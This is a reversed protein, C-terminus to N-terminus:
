VMTQEFRERHEWLSYYSGDPAVVIHDVIEVGLFQGVEIANATLMIDQPSAMSNGMPHNHAIIVRDAGAVIASRFINKIDIHVKHMEGGAVRNAGIRENNLNLFLVVVHEVPSGDLMNQLFAAADNRLQPTTAYPGALFTKYKISRDRVLELSYEPIEKWGEADSKPEGSVKMQNQTDM